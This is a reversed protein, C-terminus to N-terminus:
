YVDLHTYSVSDVGRPRHRGQGIRMRDPRGNRPQFAFVRVKQHPDVGIESIERPQVFPKVGRDVARHLVAKHHSELLHDRQNEVVVILPVFLELAIAVLGRNAFM